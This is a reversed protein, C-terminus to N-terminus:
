LEYSAVEASECVSCEAAKTPLNTGCLRCEYRTGARTSRGLMSRVTDFMSPPTYRAPLM